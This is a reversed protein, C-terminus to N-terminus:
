LLSYAEYITLQGAFLIRDAMRGPGAKSWALSVKAPAVPAEPVTAPATTCARFVSALCLRWLHSGWTHWAFDAVEWGLLCPLSWLFILDLWASGDVLLKFSWSLGSERPICRETVSTSQDNLQMWFMCSFLASLSGPSWLGFGLNIFPCGSAWLRLHTVPGLDWRVSCFGPTTM